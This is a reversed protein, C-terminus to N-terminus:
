LIYRTIMHLSAKYQIVDDRVSYQVQRYPWHFPSSAPPNRFLVSLGLNLNSISSFLLFFPMLIRSYNNKKQCNRDLFTKKWGVESLDQFVILFCDYNISHMSNSLLLNIWNIHVKFAPHNHGSISYNDGEFSLKTPFYFFFSFKM